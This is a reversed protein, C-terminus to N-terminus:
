VSRADAALAYPNHSVAVEGVQRATRPDLLRVAHDTNNAVYIRGGAAVVHTPQHGAASTVARNPPFHHPRHQGQGAADGLYLGGRRVAVVGTGRAQDLTRVVRGSRADIHTVRRASRAAVWVSAGDTVMDQVGSGVRPGDIVRGTAKDVRVLRVQDSSSVWAYGGALAVGNPRHGVDHITQVIRPFEPSGGRSLAVAVGLPTVAVAGAAAVIWRRRRPAPAVPTGATVTSADTTPAASGRAVVREPRSPAAGTVAAVAARGLDGASPFRDDPKKAMARAVVADLARPLEPRV